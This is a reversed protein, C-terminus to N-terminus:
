TVLCVTKPPLRRSLEGDHVAKNIETPTKFKLSQSLKGEKM